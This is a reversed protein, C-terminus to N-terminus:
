LCHSRPMSVLNKDAILGPVVCETVFLCYGRGIRTL